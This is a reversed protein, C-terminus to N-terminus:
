FKKCNYNIYWRLEEQQNLKVYDIYITCISLPHGVFCKTEELKKAERIALTLVIQGAMNM